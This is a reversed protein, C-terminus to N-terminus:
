RKGVTSTNSEAGNHLQEEGDLLELRSMYITIRIRHKKSLTLLRQTTASVDTMDSCNTHNKRRLISSPYCLGTTQNRSCFITAKQRQSSTLGTATQWLDIWVAIYWTLEANVEVRSSTELTNCTLSTANHYFTAFPVSLARPETNAVQNRTMASLKM